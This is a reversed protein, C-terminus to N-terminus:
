SHKFLATDKSLAPTKKKIEVYRNLRSLGKSNWWVVFQDFPLACLRIPMHHHYRGCIEACQGYYFGINDVYFTHHTSRGPVCDMKLGLGPVFWSHVVDYSNTIVTLNVHAPIVLTRKTRLLRRALTVPVLESRHRNLRAATRYNSTGYNTTVSNDSNTQEVSVEHALSLSKVDGNTYKSSLLDVGAIDIFTHSPISKLGSVEFTIPNYVVEPKFTFKKIRKYKKQRFGWFNETHLEKDSLLEGSSVFNYNLFLMSSVDNSNKLVELVHSNLVGKVFRFPQTSLKARLNSDIDSTEDLQSYDYYYNYTKGTLAIESIHNSTLKLNVGGAVFVSSNDILSFIEHINNSNWFQHSHTIPQLIKALNLNPLNGQYNLPANIESPIFNFAKPALVPSIWISSYSIPESTLSEAELTSKSVDNKSLFKVYSNQFELQATLNIAQYYTDANLSDLGSSVRWKDHGMNHPASIISQFTSPDYKYVWYWQKGQIRITFLSSENQWEIMRLIFNSNILINCCWSVPILAVLFDGWKGRGRVSTNLTVNFNFTKKTIVKLTIFYYLAWWIGFWFWWWYQWQSLHVLIESKYSSFGFNFNQQTSAETLIHGWM